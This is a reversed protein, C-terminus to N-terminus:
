QNDAAKERETNLDIPPPLPQEQVVVSTPRVEGAGNELKELSINKAINKGGSVTYDISLSDKPQIEALSKINEYATDQNVSVTVEKELDNEYDFTKLVVSGNASDVSIVEGWLWEIESGAESSAPKLPEPGTILLKEQSFGSNLGFILLGSLFVGLVLVTRRAM